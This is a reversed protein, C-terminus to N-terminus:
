FLTLIATIAFYSLAPVSIFKFLFDMWSGYKIPSTPNYWEERIKKAGIVWALFIATIAATSCYMVNGIFNDFWMFFADHWVCPIAGLCSVITALIIAKKRDMNMGEMLSSVPIEMMSITTSLGAFFFAVMYLVFWIMGGPIESFVLPLSQFILGKGATPDLGFLVVAPITVFGSLICILLQTMNVTIFDTTIDAKDTCYSGFTVLYGPGLGVAFLAMGAAAMWLGPEKLLQLDPELYFNLGETIGPLTFVRITVIILFIFMLPLLKKNAREIGDQIGRSNIIATLLVIFVVLAYNLLRNDNVMNYFGEVDALFPAGTITSFIYVLVTGMIVPYYFMLGLPTIACLYGYIRGKNGAVEGFTGVLSKKYKRGLAIEAFGAPIVALLSIIVFALVFSGGGYQATLTPFRWMAGVGIAMGLTSLIYGIRSGWSERELNNIDNSM